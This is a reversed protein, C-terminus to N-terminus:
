LEVVEIYDKLATVIDDKHKRSLEAFSFQNCEKSVFGGANRVKARNKTITKKGKENQIYLHLLGMREKYATSLTEIDLSEKGNMISIEQSDHLLAIVNSPLGKTHEFIWAFTKEDFIAKHRTYNYGAVTGVLNIFEENYAKGNYNMGLARRAFFEEQEFFNRSEPTGVMVISTGSNNILQTLAGILNTGHKSKVVNQIEDIILVGIHNLAVQSVIGILVDTTHGKTHVFTSYDTDLLTDVKKIIEILLSKISCDFPCQVILVPIIKTIDTEIINDALLRVANDIASSKGIGATGTILISDAGGILGNSKNRIIAKHNENRQLVAKKSMKKNLSRSLAVYLKSYIEYSMATPVYIEYLRDLLALREQAPLLRDEAKYEPLITLREKLEKGSLLVPLYNDDM